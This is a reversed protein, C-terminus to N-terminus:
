AASGPAWAAPSTAQLAADPCVTHAAPAQHCPAPLAGRGGTGSTGCAVVSEGCLLPNRHVEYLAAGDCWQPPVPGSFNNDQLQARKLAPLAGLFAPLLGQLRNGDALLMQLQTLQAM